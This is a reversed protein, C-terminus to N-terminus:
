ICIKKSIATEPICTLIMMLSDHIKKDVFGPFGRKIFCINYLYIGRHWAARNKQSNWKAQYRSGVVYMSNNLRTTTSVGMGLIPTCWQLRM